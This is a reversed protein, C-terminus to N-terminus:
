EAHAAAPQPARERALPKGQKFLLLLPLSVLLLMGSLMYIKEFALVNAQLLIQGDIARMAAQTASQSDLGRSMMGQTLAAMRERVVPSYASM